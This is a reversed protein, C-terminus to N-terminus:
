ARHKREQWSLYFLGGILLASIALPLSWVLRVHWPEDSIKGFVNWGILLLGALTWAFAGVLESKWALIMMLTLFIVPLNHMLLGTLLQGASQGPEVVDLSFM